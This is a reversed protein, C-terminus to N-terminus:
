GEYTWDPRKKRHHEDYTVSFKLEAGRKENRNRLDLALRKELQAADM